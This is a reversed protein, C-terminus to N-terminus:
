APFSKVFVAYGTPVTVHLVEEAAVALIGFLYDARVAAHDEAKSCSRQTILIEM